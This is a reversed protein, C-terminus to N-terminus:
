QWYRTDIHQIERTMLPNEFLIARRQELALEKLPFHQPHSQYLTMYSGDEYASAFGALLLEHLKLNDRHVFFFFDYRPIDLYFDSVLDIDEFHAQYMSVFSRAENAGLPIYDIRGSAL